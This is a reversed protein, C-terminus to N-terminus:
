SEGPKKRGPPFRAWAIRGSNYRRVTWGVGVREYGTTLALIGIDAVALEVRASSAMGSRIYAAAAERARTEDDTVGRGSVTPGTADWLWFIM